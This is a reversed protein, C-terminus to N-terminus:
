SGPSTTVSRTAANSRCTGSCWRCCRSASTNAGPCAVGGRRGPTPTTGLIPVGLDDAVVQVVEDRCGAPDVAWTARRIPLTYAALVAKLQPDHRMRAYTQVSSPWTLDPIQEYIDAWYPGLIEAADLTGIDRLAPTGNIAV